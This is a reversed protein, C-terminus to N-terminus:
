VLELGADSNEGQFKLKLQGLGLIMVSETASMQPKQPITDEVVSGPKDRVKPIFYLGFKQSDSFFPLFLYIPISLCGSGFLFNRLIGDRSKSFGPEKM